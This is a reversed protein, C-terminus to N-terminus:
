RRCRRLVRAGGTIWKNVLKRAHKFVRISASGLRFVPSLTLPFGELNRENREEKGEEFKDSTHEVLASSAYTCPQFQNWLQLLSNSTEFTTLPPFNKRLLSRQNSLFYHFSVDSLDTVISSFTLGNSVDIDCITLFSFRIEYHPKSSGVEFHFGLLSIAPTKIREELNIM